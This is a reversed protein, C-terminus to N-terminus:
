QFVKVRQDIPMFSKEDAPSGVSGFPMEAMLKWEAPLNWQQRVKEDILPNYHQLSAGLGADELATWVVLQTMGSSQTSWLPFNDSYLPFQEQLGKVTPQDEFFLVTGYGAAFSNIKQETSAFAEAPVIGRLIEKTIDWLTQHQQGFLVVVRASQSNFASPTHQVSQQIINIIEDQSLTVDKGIHYISRRHRIADLFLKSM